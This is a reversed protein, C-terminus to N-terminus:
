LRLTWTEGVLSRGFSRHPASAFLTYGATEYIRRAAGLNRNTWLEIRRYGAARAFAACEDVLRRGLGHGRAWPEVLLLRLKAVRESKRVLCVSGAREGDVEAIWCRERAPDFKAVIGAVIGAVMGEFRQDWGYERTYLEGHRAVIWGFDGPRHPRLTVAPAAQGASLLREISRMAAVLRAQSEGSLPALLTGVQRRSRSDIRQFAARGAATLRIVQLRRDSASRERAILRSREFGRLIRSLYGADLGLERALAGAAPQKRRALEYLVRAQALSFPSEWLGEDLVGIARTYFRNFGRVAEIRAASGGTAM